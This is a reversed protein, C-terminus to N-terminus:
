IKHQKQMGTSEKNDKSLNRIKEETASNQPSARPCYNAKENNKLCNLYNTLAKGQSRPAILSAESKKISELPIAALETEENKTSKKSQNTKEILSSQKSSLLQTKEESHEDSDSDSDSYIEKPGLISNLEKNTM